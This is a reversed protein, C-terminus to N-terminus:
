APLVGLLAVQPINLFIDAVQVALSDVRGRKYAASSGFSVAILTSLLASVLGVIVVDQGGALIQKLTDQGQGDTGLWHASSPPSYSISLNAVKDPTVLYPGVLCEICILVFVIFGIMGTVSRRLGTFFIGIWGTGVTPTAAVPGADAALMQTAM